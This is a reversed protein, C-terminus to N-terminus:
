SSIHTETEFVAQYVDKGFSTQLPEGEFLKYTRKGRARREARLFIADKRDEQYYGNAFEYMHTVYFVKIASELLANTIQRAIESGERENTAAFSENFLIMSNPSILDVIASMRGLEEDLKGSKMTADEKRRYHTFLGTCTNASFDEAPVFMGAQMMLQALGMSRLFTSKGGQNAGTIIVLNKHDAKLDNGVIKQKMTLALCVDYIGRFSLRRENAGFPVPFTVPSGLEMLQEHLHICGIYFGLEVRLMNIFSDIHDAAQALANAVANLGIDKLAALARSGAEDRNSIWFSYVPNSRTFMDIVSKRSKPNPLRLTYNAAENGKGLEASILAGDTFKLNKLHENVSALYEDDLDQRIMAFFNKFGQSEFEDGHEDAIKRLKKLLEVQMDMMEVASYLLSSASHTFFGFWRKKKNEISELPISYIKRVVESNKLCDRLIDQRYCIEEPECLSALIAKKSVDFIFPDGLAMANLLTDLELDAVLDAENAPFPQNPDFDRNKYM